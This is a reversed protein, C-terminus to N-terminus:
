IPTMDSFLLRELEAPRLELNQDKGCWEAERRERFQVLRVGVNVVVNSIDFVYVSQHRKSPSRPSGMEIWHGSAIFVDISLNLPNILSLIPSLNIELSKIRQFTHYKKTFIESM